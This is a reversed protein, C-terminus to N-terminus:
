VFLLYYLDISPKRVKEKFDDRGPHYKTVREYILKPNGPVLELDIGAAKAAEVGGNSVISRVDLGVPTKFTHKQLMKEKEQPSAQMWPIYDSQEAGRVLINDAVVISKGTNLLGLAEVLWIDPLYRQKWHDIFLVDIGDKLVGKELLRALSLHGPAIVITIFDRLGALDILLNAIAANVPNLEL